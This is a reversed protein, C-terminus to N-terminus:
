LATNFQATNANVQEISAAVENVSSALEETSGGVAAAQEATEKLSAVSRTASGAAADLAQLQATAGALVRDGIQPLEDAAVTHRGAEGRLRTTDTETAM